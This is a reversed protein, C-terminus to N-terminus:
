QSILRAEGSQGTDVSQYPFFLSNLNLKGADLFGFIQRFNEIQRPTLSLERICSQMVDRIAQTTLHSVGTQERAASQAATPV